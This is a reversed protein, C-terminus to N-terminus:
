AAYILVKERSFSARFPEYLQQEGFILDVPLGLRERITRKDPKAYMRCPLPWATAAQLKAASDIPTDIPADIPTDIPAAFFCTRLYRLSIFIRDPITFPSM